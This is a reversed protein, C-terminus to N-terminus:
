DERYEKSMGEDETELMEDVAQLAVTIGSLIGDRYEDPNDVTYQKHKDLLRRKIAILDQIM